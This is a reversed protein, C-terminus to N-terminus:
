RPSASRRFQKLFNYLQPRKRMAHKARVFVHFRSALRSVLPIRRSLGEEMTYLCPNCVGCPRFNQRPRHCFWTLEMIDDFGSDRALTQMDLKTLDFVPFRFCGFVAHEDSGAWKPDVRYRGGDARDSSACLSELVKHARDDKHICLEMDSIGAEHCLRPLWDYQSGIFLRDRVREFQATLPPNPAIDFLDKLITPSLLRRAEPRKHFVRAKINRMSRLEAGTSQRDADIVYFPQVRRRELLVLQLLRFTSDWGGTWLLHIPPTQEQEM